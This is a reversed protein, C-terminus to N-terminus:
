LNMEASSSEPLSLVLLAASTSLTCVPEEGAGSGKPLSRVLLAPVTLCPVSLIM